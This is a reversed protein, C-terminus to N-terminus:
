QLRDVIGTRTYLLKVGGSRTVNAVFPRVIKRLIGLIEPMAGVFAQAMEPGTMEASVLNFCAVNANVLSVLELQNSKISRDKTLVTWGRAGVIPLWDRDPADQSFHDHHVEVKAGMARLQGAVILRGL